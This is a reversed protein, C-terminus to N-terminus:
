GEEDPARSEDGRLWLLLDIIGQEDSMGKYRTGQNIGQYAWSEVRSIEQENPEVKTTHTLNLLNM